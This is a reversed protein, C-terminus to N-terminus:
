LTVDRTRLTEMLGLLAKRRAAPMAQYAEVLKRGERTRILDLLPREQASVQSPLPASPQQGDYFSTIGTGLLEAIQHLRSSSVRNLGKEYKQVQQYSIGLASSLASLTMGVAVRRARIREGIERDMTDPSRGTSRKPNM